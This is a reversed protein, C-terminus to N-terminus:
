SDSSRQSGVPCPVWARTGHCITRCRELSLRRAIFQTRARPIFIRFRFRILRINNPESAPPALHLLPHFRRHIPQAEGCLRRFRSPESLTEDNTRTAHWADRTM